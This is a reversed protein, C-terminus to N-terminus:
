RTTTDCLGVARGRQQRYQRTAEHARATHRCGSACLAAGGAATTGKGEVRPPARRSRGRLHGLRAVLKLAHCLQGPARVVRLLKLPRPQRKRLDVQLAALKVQRLHPRRQHGPHQPTSGPLSAGEPLAHLSGSGCTGSPAQQQWPRARLSCSRRAWRQGARAARAAMPARRASGSACCTTRERTPSARRPPLARPPTRPRPPSSRARKAGTRCALQRMPPLQPSPAALEARGPAQAAGCCRPWSSRTAEARPPTRNRAAGVRPRRHACHRAPATVLTQGAGQDAPRVGRQAVLQCEVVQLSSPPCALARGCQVTIYSRQAPQGSM